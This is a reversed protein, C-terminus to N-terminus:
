LISKYKVARKVGELLDQGNRGDLEKWIYRNEINVYRHDKRKIEKESAYYNNLFAPIRCGLEKSIKRYPKFKRKKWRSHQTTIFVTKRDNHLEDM